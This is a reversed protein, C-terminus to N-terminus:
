AVLDGVEFTVYKVIAKQEDDPLEQSTNLWMARITTAAKMRAKIAAIVTEIRKYSGPEDYVWFHVQTRTAVDTEDDGRLAPNEDQVRYVIYPRVTVIGTLSGGSMLGGPALSTVSAHNAVAYVEDRVTV